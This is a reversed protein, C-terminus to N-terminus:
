EKSSLNEKDRSINYGMHQPFYVRRPLFSDTTQLSKEFKILNEKRNSQQCFNFSNTSPFYDSRIFHCACYLRVYYIHSHCLGNISINDYQYYKRSKRQYCYKTRRFSSDSLR